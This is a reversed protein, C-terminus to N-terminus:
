KAIMEVKRSEAMTQPRGVVLQLYQVVVAWPAEAKWSGGGGSLTGSPYIMRAFEEFGFDLHGNQYFKQIKCM